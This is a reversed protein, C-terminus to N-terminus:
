ATTSLLRWTRFLPYQMGAAIGIQYTWSSFNWVEFTGMIGLFYISTAVVGTGCSRVLRGIRRSSRCQSPWRFLRRSSRMIVVITGLIAALAFVQTVLTPGWEIARVFESQPSSTPTLALEYKIWESVGYIASTTVVFLIRPRERTPSLSSGSTM